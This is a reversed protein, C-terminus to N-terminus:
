IQKLAYLEKAKEVAETLMPLVSGTLLNERWSPGDAASNTDYDGM